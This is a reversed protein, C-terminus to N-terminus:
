EEQESNYEERKTQVQEILSIQEIAFQNGNQAQTGMYLLPNLKLILGGTVFFYAISLGGLWYLGKWLCLGGWVFGALRLGNLLSSFAEAAGSALFYLHYRQYVEIEDPNLMRCLPVEKSPKTAFNMSLLILWLVYAIAVFTITSTELSSSGILVSVGIIILTFVNGIMTGM